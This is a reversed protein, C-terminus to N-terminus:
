NTLDTRQLHQAAAQDELFGAEDGLAKKSAARALYVYPAEVRINIADTYDSIAQQHQGLASYVQGRQFFGDVSPAIQLSRDLDAMARPLDSHLRYYTGRATYAEALNPDVQIAKTWDALAEQSRGQSARANGRQLYAVATERISISETFKAIAADFNGPGMQVMAAEYASQARIPADSVYRFGWFGAGLVVATALSVWIIRRQSTNMTAPQRSSPPRIANWLRQYWPIVVQVQRARIHAPMEPKELIKQIKRFFSVAM